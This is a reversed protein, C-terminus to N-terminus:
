VFVRGGWTEGFTREYTDAGLSEDRSRKWNTIPPALVHMHPYKLESDSQSKRGRQSIPEMM